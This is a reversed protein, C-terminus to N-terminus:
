PAGGPDTGDDAGPEYNLLSQAYRKFWLLAALAERTQRMYELLPMSSVHASPAKDTPWKLQTRLDELLVKQGGKGRAEVYALAQALGATRILIPLKSAMGGYQNSEEKSTFNHAKVLTYVKSAMRQDRTQFQQTV